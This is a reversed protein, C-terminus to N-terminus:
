LGEVYEVLAELQDDSIQSEPFAPMGGGGQRVQMRIRDETLDDRGALAPGVGANGNPHCSNCNQQFVAQGDAAGGSPQTAEGAPQTPAGGAPTTIAQTTPTPAAGGNQPCGMVLLSALSILLAVFLVSKFTTRNM